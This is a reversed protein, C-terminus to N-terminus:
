EHAAKRVAEFVDDWVIGKWPIHDEIGDLLGYLVRREEKNFHRNIYSANRPYLARPRLFNLLTGLKYEIDLSRVERVGTRFENRVRLYGLRSKVQRIYEAKAVSFEDHKEKWVDLMPEDGYTEPRTHDWVKAKEILRVLRYCRGCYGRGGYGRDEPDCRCNACAQYKDPWPSM